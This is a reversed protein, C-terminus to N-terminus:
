EEPEEASEMWTILTTRNKGALEAEYMEDLQDPHDIIYDQVESVTHAAPDYGVPVEETIEDTPPLQQQQEVMLPSGTQGTSVTTLPITTVGAPPYPNGGEGVGTATATITKAAGPGTYTVNHPGPGTATGPTAGTGFNWALSTTRTSPADLRFTWKLGDTGPPVTLAAIAAGVEVIGKSGFTYPGHVAVISM